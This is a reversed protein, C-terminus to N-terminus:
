RRKPVLLVPMGNRTVRLVRGAPLRNTRLWEGACSMAELAHEENVRLWIMRASRMSQGLLACDRNNTVLVAKKKDAYAILEADPVDNLHAEEATWVEHRKSRCWTTVSM